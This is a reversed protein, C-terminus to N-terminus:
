YLSSTGSLYSSYMIRYETQWTLKNGERKVVTVDKVYNLPKKTFKAQVCGSSRCRLVYHASLMSRPKPLQSGLSSLVRTFLDVKSVILCKNGSVPSVFWQPNKKKKAMLVCIFGSQETGETFSIHFPRFSEKRLKMRPLLVKSKHSLSRDHAMYRLLVAYLFLKRWRSATFPIKRM